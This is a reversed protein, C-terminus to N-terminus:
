ETMLVCIKDLVARVEASPASQNNSLLSFALMTGDRREAYGSLAAVHTLSGTKAHIRGAAGTNRLRLKLTGDEGGIPLLSLWNERHPSRYMYQLLKVVAAPTVLNTRALGSGDNPQYEEASVGIEKLFARMELLGAERTGAGRWARAVARLILEAHLNQSVKATVRLDELLPASDRRALEFGAAPAGSQGPGAHRAVAEGRIAVGRRELADRLAVAAYLAPDHIALLEALGPDKPPLTGWIRLQRSGPEREIEIKKPTGLRVLNDIQYFELPPEISIKAPDGPKMRLTFANDNITLASVPAGYEWLADGLGWGNPYPEFEYASDDGVIDGDIRRVGRAVIQAALDEIAQLGDGPLSDVRYPLERGSLNPDGDGVLSIAGAIRGEGDPERSAVVTTHFQYDPGLRALGLATTFLKSNSAPVFLRDANSEFLVEGTGLHVIQLGLYGRRLGTAADLTRQIKGALEGALESAALGATLCFNLAIARQLRM